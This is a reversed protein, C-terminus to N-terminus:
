LKNGKSVNDVYWMPQTNTYYSCKRYLEPDTLDFFSKPFIHDITWKGEGYGYNDWSMGETWLSEIYERYQPTTLGVKKIGYQEAVPTMDTHVGLLARRTENSVKKSLSYQPNNKNQERQWENYQEKVEPRQNYEKIKNSNNARYEKNYEAIKDRNNASYEKRCDKCRAQLGDKKARNKGYDSFPKIERCKSCTKM